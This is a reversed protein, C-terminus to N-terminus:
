NQLDKCDKPDAFFVGGYEKIVRCREEMNLAMHIRGLDTPRKSESELELVWVGGEQPWGLVLEREEEATKSRGGPLVDVYDAESAWWIAGIKRLRECFRDEEVQSPSRPSAALRDVQLFDLEVADPGEKILMGGTSPWGFVTCGHTGFELRKTTDWETTPCSTIARARDETSMEATSRTTTSFFKQVRSLWASVFGMSMFLLGGFIFAVTTKGTFSRTSDEQENNFAMQETAPIEHMSPRYFKEDMIVAAELWTLPRPKDNAKNDNAKEDDSFSM